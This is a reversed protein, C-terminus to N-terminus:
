RGDKQAQEVYPKVVRIYDEICDVQWVVNDGLRLMDIAEDMGQMGTSVSDLGGMLDAEREQEKETKRM